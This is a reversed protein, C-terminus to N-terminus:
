WDVHRDNTKNVMNFKDWTRSSRGRGRGRGILIAALVILLVWKAIEVGFFASEMVLLKAHYGASGGSPLFDTLRGISVVEPWIFLRQVLVCLIMAASLALSFKGEGTGFLLFCLFFFGLGIQAGQWLGMEHRTLEAAEYRLLVTTEAPGLMKIRVTATPDGSALLRDVAHSNEGVLWTVVLGGALWMGLLLCAFRRSHM